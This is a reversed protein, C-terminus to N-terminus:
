YLINFFNHINFVLTYSVDNGHNQSEKSSDLLFKNLIPVVDTLTRKLIFSKAVKSLTILLEFSRSLIIPNSEKFRESFPEWILHVVPLLEDEYNKLVLLGVNLTELIIIKDSQEFSPIYKLCIKLVNITVQIHQPIIKKDEEENNPEPEDPVIDEAESIPEEMVDDDSEEFQWLELLSKESVKATENDIKSTVPMSKEWNQVALVFYKLLKLHSTINRPRYNEGLRDLVTNIITELYPMSEILSYKLIVTIIDM